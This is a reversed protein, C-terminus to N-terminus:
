CGTKRRQLWYRREDDSLKEIAYRLMTSPMQPAHLEFFGLLHDMGGNKGAERMMWGAAKHLLDESSHMLVLARSFTEEYREYRVLRWTSVMSIRQQWLTHGEPMIWEEMLGRDLHFIEAYGAITTASLDVLDWNNIYPHLSCYLDFIQQMEETNKQKVAREMKKVLILMACLRVEHVPDQALTVCDDLSAEKWAEKVVMRVQPNRVGAFQDGEGYQGKGTKFFYLYQEVYDPNALSLLTQRIDSAIM